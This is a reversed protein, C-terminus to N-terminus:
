VLVRYSSVGGHELEVHNPFFFVPRLELSYNRMSQMDEHGAVMFSFAVVLFEVWCNKSSNSISDFQEGLDYMIVIPTKSDSPLSSYCTVRDIDGPGESNFLIPRCWKDENM